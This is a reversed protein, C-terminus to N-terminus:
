NKILREVAQLQGDNLIQITYVGNTLDSINMNIQNSGLATETEIQKVVRGSMDLLKISTLNSIESTLSITIDGKTPNPYISIQSVPAVIQSETGKASPGTTFFGSASYLSSSSGCTSRVQFEYNTNLSLGAISKNTNTTTSSAWTSSTLPKWRVTYFGATTSAWNLNATTGSINTTFLGTPVGCVNNTTFFVSSSWPGVNSATCYGRAQVEYATNPTLNTLVKSLASGATSVTWTSSSTPKYRVEFWGIGNVGVWNATSSVGLINTVNLNHVTAVTTSLVGTAANTCGNADTYYYTYSTAAGLYPNPLDWSGGAPTGGLTISSNPCASIAPASVIPLPNITLILQYDQCGTYYTYIGSSTYSVGNIAWTYNVCSSATTTIVPNPAGTVDWVCTTTNFTATEYCALTPMAPQTGTVDWSCTTTNFSATEYCALSPQAPIPTVILSLTETHPCGAANTTVNTYIGSSTYTTGNGLPGAWLYSNCATVTTTNSTEQNVSITISGCSGPTVCGGEGRAYYTTTTAPSVIISTGTGVLTGGCSGSYWTWDTSNNLTGSAISLTTAQTGCNSISSANITPMTANICFSTLLTIDSFFTGPTNDYNSGGNVGPTATISTGSSHIYSDGGISAPIAFNGSAGDGGVYGGGGGGCQPTQGGGGGFGVGGNGGVSCGQNKGVGGASLGTLTGAGGGTGPCVGFTSNAGAFGFGGGGAAVPAAGGAATPNTNALGGGGPTGRSGGGGSGAAMLVTSGNLIVGTGGGGGGGSRSDFTADQGAAGLMITIVDGATLSFTATMTSGSGGQQGGGWADGGDSGGITFTYNGTTPIYRTYLGSATLSTQAIIQKPLVSVILLTACALIASKLKKITIPKQQM